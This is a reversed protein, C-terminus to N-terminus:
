AEAGLIRSILSFVPNETNSETRGLLLRQLLTFTRRMRLSTTGLSAYQDPM